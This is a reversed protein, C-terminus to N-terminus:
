VRVWAPQAVPILSRLLRILLAQASRNVEDSSLM